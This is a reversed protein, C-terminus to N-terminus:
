LISVQKIDSKTIDKDILMYRSSIVNDLRGNAVDVLKQQYHDQLHNSVFDILQPINFAKTRQLIKDKLVRMAAECFNNTNNGRTMLSGRYVLSWMEKRKHYSTLYKKYKRYM